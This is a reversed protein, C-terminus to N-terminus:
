RPPGFVGLPGQRLNIVVGKTLTYHNLVEHTADQGSALTGCSLLLSALMFLWRAFRVADSSKM